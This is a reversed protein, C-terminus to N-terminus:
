DDADSYVMPSAVPGPGAPPPVIYPNSGAHETLYGPGCEDYQSRTICSAAFAPSSAFAACGRWNDLVPDYTRVINFTSGQPRISPLSAQLRPILQNTLSAGGTLYIRDMLRQQVSPPYRQLVSHIAETLGACDKGLLSPQFPLEATRIRLSGLRIQFDAEGLEPVPEAGGGGSQFSEDLDRLKGELFGLRELEEESESDDKAIERYVQWDEDDAGFTDETGKTEATQEVIRRMRQRSAASRRNGLEVKKSRRKELNSLITERELYLEAIYGQPDEKIRNEQEQHATSAEIKRKKAAHRSAALAKLQKQKRKQKIEEKSLQDDPVSLLPFNAPDMPDSDSEVSPEMVFNDMELHEKVVNLARACELRRRDFSAATHGLTQLSSDYEAKNSERMQHILEMQEWEESLAEHKELRKQKILERMRQAQAARVAERREAEQAALKQRAALKAANFPLQVTVTRSLAAHSNMDQFLALEESFNSACYSFSEKLYNCRLPSLLGRHMPYELILSRQLFDTAHSGGVNIRKCNAVDVKGDVYPIIHTTNYGFSLLLADGALMGDYAQNHYFFGMLADIAYSVAPVGYAEFFLESSVSRAQLPMCVPETMMVAHPIGHEATIGLRDFSHDLIHELSELNCLVNNDHVSKVALKSAVQETIDNGVLVGNTGAYTLISALPTHPQAKGSVKGIMTRFNLDPEKSSSWGVRTSHGGLDIVVSDSLHDIYGEMRLDVRNPFLAADPPLSLIGTPADGPM